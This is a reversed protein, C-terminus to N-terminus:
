SSPISLLQSLIKLPCWVVGSHREFIQGCCRRPLLENVIIVCLCVGVCTFVWVCVCVVFMWVSVWLCVGVCLCVGACLCFSVCLCVCSRVSILMSLFGRVCVCVPVNLSLCSWVSMWRLCPWVYECQGACICAALRMSENEKDWSLQCNMNMWIIEKIVACVCRTNGCSSPDM